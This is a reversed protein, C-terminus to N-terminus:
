GAQVRHGNNLADRRSVTIGELRHESRGTLHLPKRQKFDGQTLRDRGVRHEVALVIGPLNIGAQQGVVDIRFSQGVVQQEAQGALIRRDIFAHRCRQDPDGIVERDDVVGLDLIEDIVIGAPPALDKGTPQFARGTKQRHHPFDEGFVAQRLVEGIKGHDFGAEIGPGVAPGM